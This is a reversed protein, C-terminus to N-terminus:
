RLAPGVYTPADAGIQQVLAAVNQFRRRVPMHHDDGAGAIFDRRTVVPKVDEDAPAGGDAQTPQEGASGDHEPM